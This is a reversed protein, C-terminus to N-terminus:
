VAVMWYRQIVTEGIAIEAATVAHRRIGQRLYEGLSLKGSDIEASLMDFVAGSNGLLCPQIIDFEDVTVKIIQAFSIQWIKIKDNQM